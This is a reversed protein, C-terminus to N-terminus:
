YPLRYKVNNINIKNKLKKYDMILINLLDDSQFANSNNLNVDIIM